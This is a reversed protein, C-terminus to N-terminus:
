REVNARWHLDMAVKKIVTGYDMVVGLLRLKQVVHTAMGLAGIPIAAGVLKQGRIGAKVLKAYMCVEVWKRVTSSRPYKKAIGCCLMKMHAATSVLANCHKMVNALDVKTVMSALDGATSLASGGRKKFARHAMYEVSRPSRGDTFGHSVFVPNYPAKVNFDDVETLFDTYLLKIITPSPRRLGLKSAIVWPINEASDSM